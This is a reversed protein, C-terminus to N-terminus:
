KYKATRSKSTQEDIVEQISQYYKKDFLLDFEDECELSISIKILSTLSIEGKTEFRKISGFSVGSKSSLEEQTLKMEKRRAQMRKAIALAISTSDKITLFYDIYIDQKM